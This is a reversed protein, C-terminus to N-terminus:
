TDERLECFVWEYRTHDTKAVKLPRGLKREISELAPKSGIVTQGKANGSGKTTHTPFRYKSARHKKYLKSRM